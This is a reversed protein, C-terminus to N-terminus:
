ERQLTNPAMGVSATPMNERSFRWMAVRAHGHWGRCRRHFRELEGACPRCDGVGFAPKDRGGRDKEVHISLGHLAANLFVGVCEKAAEESASGITQYLYEEPKKKESEESISLRISQLPDTSELRLSPSYAATVAM